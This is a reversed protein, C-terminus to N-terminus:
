KVWPLSSIAGANFMADLAAKNKEALERAQKQVEDPVDARTALGILQQAAARRVNEPVRDSGVVKGLTDFDPQEVTRRKALGESLADSAASRVAETGNKEAWELQQRAHTRKDADQSTLDLGFDRVLTAQEDTMAPTGIVSKQRTELVGREIGEQSEKPSWEGRESPTSIRVGGIGRSKMDTAFGDRTDNLLTTMQAVFKGSAIREKLDSPDATLDSLAEIARPGLKEGLGKAKAIIAEHWQTAIAGWEKRNVISPDSEVRHIVSDALDVFQQAASVEGKIKTAEDKDSATAGYLDGAQKRIGAAQARLARAQNPDTAKVARADLSRASALMPEGRPDALVPEGTNPNFLARERQKEVIERQKGAHALIKEVDGATAGKVGQADLTDAIDSGLRSRLEAPSLIRNAEKQQREERNEKKLAIYEDAKNHRTEELQKRISTEVEAQKMHNTFQQQNFDMLAKAQIAHAQDLSDRLRIATAGQPDFQQLQSQMSNIASQYAAVRYTEQAKYLDGHREFEAAIAGKRTEIGRWQNAIDLKQAEIDADVRKGFNDLALNKGGTYQSMAGGVTSALLMGITGATGLNKVLRDPDIKVNALRQADALMQNTDAQARTFAQQRSFFAEQERALNENEIQTRRRAEEQLLRGQENAKYTIYEDSSMQQVARAQDAPSMKAIAAARQEPTEQRTFALRDEPSLKAELATRDQPALAAADPQLAPGQPEPVQSPSVVPGGPQMAALFPDVQGPATPPASQPVVPTPAEAPMADPQQATEEGMAAFDEGIRKKGDRPTPVLGRDRTRFPDLQPDIPPQPKPPPPAPQPVTTPPVLPVGYEPLVQQPQAGYQALWPPPQGPAWDNGSNPDEAM